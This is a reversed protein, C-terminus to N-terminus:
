FGVRQRASADPVVISALWFGHRCRKCRILKVQQNVRGIMPSGNTSQCLKSVPQERHKEVDEQAGMGCGGASVKPKEDRTENCVKRRGPGQMTGDTMDGSRMMERGFHGSGTPLVSGINGAVLETCDCTFRVGTRQNMCRIECEDAFRNQRM